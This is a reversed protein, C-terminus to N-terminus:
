SNQDDLLKLLPEIEPFQDRQPLLAEKPGGSFVQVTVGGKNFVLPVLRAIDDILMNLYSFVGEAHISANLGTAGLWEGGGQELFQEFYGSYEAMSRQLMDLSHLLRDLVGRFHYAIV